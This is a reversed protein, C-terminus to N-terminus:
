VSGRYLHPYIEKALEEKMFHTRDYWDEQSLGFAEDEAVRILRMRRDYKEQDTLKNIM